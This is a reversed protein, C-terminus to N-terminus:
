TGLAAVLAAADDRDAAGLFDGGIGLAVGALVQFFDEIFFRLAALLFLLPGRALIRNKLRAM